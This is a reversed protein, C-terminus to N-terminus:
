HSIFFLRNPANKYCNKQARTKLLQIKPYQSFRELLVFCQFMLVAIQQFINTTVVDSLIMSFEFDFTRIEQTASGYM